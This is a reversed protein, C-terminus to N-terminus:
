EYQLVLVINIYKTGRYMHIIIVTKMEPPNCMYPVCIKLPVLTLIPGSWTLPM